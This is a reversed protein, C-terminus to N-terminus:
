KSKIYSLIDPNKYKRKEEQSVEFDGTKLRKETDNLGRYHLFKIMEDDSFGYKNILPRLQEIKPMYINQVVHQMFQDQVQPNKAFAAMVQSKPTNAPLGMFNAIEDAWQPTFQYYSTAGIMNVAEPNGGSEHRKIQDIVNGSSSSSGGSYSMPAFSQSYKEALEKDPIPAEDQFIWSELGSKFSEEPAFDEQQIPSQFDPSYLSETDPTPQPEQPDIEGGEQMMVAQKVVGQLEKYGQNFSQLGQSQLSKWKLKKQTNVNDYHDQFVQNLEQQKEIQDQYNNM